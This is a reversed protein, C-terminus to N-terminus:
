RRRTTAPANVAERMAAALRPDVDAATTPWDDDFAHDAWFAAEDAETAFVPIDDPSHVLKMRKM